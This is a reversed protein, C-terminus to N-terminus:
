RPRGPRAQRATSAVGRCPARRGGSTSQGASPAGPFDQRIAQGPAAAEGPGPAGEPVGQTKVSPNASSATKRPPEAPKEQPQKVVARTYWSTAEAHWVANQAFGAVYERWQGGDYRSRRDAFASMLMDAGDCLGQNYPSAPDHTSAPATAGLELAYEAVVCAVEATWGAHAAEYATDYREKAAPTNGDAERLAQAAMYAERKHRGAEMLAYDLRKDPTGHEALIRATEDDAGQAIAQAEGAQISSGPQASASFETGPPSGAAAGPTFPQQQQGALYTEVAQQAEAASHCPGTVTGTDRGPYEARDEALGGVHLHIADGPGGWTLHQVGTRQGPARGPMAWVTAGVATKGLPNM